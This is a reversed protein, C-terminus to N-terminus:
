SLGILHAIKLPACPCSCLRPPARHAGGHSPLAAYVALDQDEMLTRLSVWTDLWLLSSCGSPLEFLFM